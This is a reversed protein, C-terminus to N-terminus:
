SLSRIGMGGHEGERDGHRWRRDSRYGRRSWPMERELSAYLAGLNAM